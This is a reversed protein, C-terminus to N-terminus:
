GSVTSPSDADFLIKKIPAKLSKNKAESSKPKKKDTVQFFFFFDHNLFNVSISSATFLPASLDSICNLNHKQGPVFLCYVDKEDKKLQLQEKFFLFQM